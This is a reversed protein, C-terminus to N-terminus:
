TDDKLNGSNGNHYCLPSGIVLLVRVVGFVEPHSVGRLSYCANESYQLIRKLTLTIGQKM